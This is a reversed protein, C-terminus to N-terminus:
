QFLFSGRADNPKGKQLKGVTGHVGTTATQQINRSGDVGRPAMLHNSEVGDVHATSTM